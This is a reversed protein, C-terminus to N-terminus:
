ERHKLENEEQCRALSLCLGQQAACGLSPRSPPQQRPDQPEGWGQERHCSGTSEGLPTRPM